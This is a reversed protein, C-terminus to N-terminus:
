GGLRSSQDTEWEYGSLRRFKLAARVRVRLTIYLYALVDLWRKPRFLLRRIAAAWDKSETTRSVPFRKGLEWLGLRSRTKVRILDRINTPATITFSCNELTHRESPGFLSRVYGDDAIIEPFSGFRRRGAESVAYLGSGIMGESHYPLQLWIRYFARVCWSSRSYDVRMQPAAALYEGRNLLDAVSKIAAWSVKVDADLYFRPFTEAQSDGLNLAAIKSAVETEVVTLPFDYRRCIEATADTCGNCAVVIELETPNADALLADLLRQIVSAEDHAPIVISIRERM